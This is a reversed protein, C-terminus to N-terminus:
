YFRYPYYPYRSFPFCAGYPFGCFFPFGFFPFGFFRRGFFM